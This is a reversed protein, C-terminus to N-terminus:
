HKVLKGDGLPNIEDFPEWSPYAEHPFHERAAKITALLDPMSFKGDKLLWDDGPEWANSRLVSIESNYILQAITESVIRGAVPGLKGDEQDDAEALVYFWLPTDASFVEALRRKIALIEEPTKGDKEDVKRDPIIRSMRSKSLPRLGMCVAVTQGSSLYLQRGRFFDLAALSSARGNSYYKIEPRLQLLERPLNTDIPEAFNLKSNGTEYFRSWDIIWGSPLSVMSAHGTRFQLESVNAAKKKENSLFVNLDYEKRIMSHGFRFAATSFELPIFSESVPQYRMEGTNLDKDIVQRLCKARVIRPLFDTLVITQYYRINLERAKEFILDKKFNGTPDKYAEMKSLLLVLANHFKIFLLLTQAVILIEDNRQDVIIAAPSKYKRPLDCPYTLSATSQPGGSPATSGVKLFPLPAFPDLLDARPTEGPNTPQWQGYVGELNFDPKRLNRVTNAYNPGYDNEWPLDKVTHRDSGQFNSIDHAIFQGLYTYGAPIRTPEAQFNKWLKWLYKIRPKVVEKDPFKMRGSMIMALHDLDEFTPRLPSCDCLRRYDSNPM